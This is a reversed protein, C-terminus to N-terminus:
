TEGDSYLVDVGANRPNPAFGPGGTSLQLRPLGDGGLVRLVGAGWPLLGMMARPEGDSNVVAVSEGQVASAQALTSAPLLLIFALITVVFSVAASILCPVLIQQRM